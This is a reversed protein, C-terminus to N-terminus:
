AAEDLGGGSQRLLCPEDERGINITTTAIADERLTQVNLRPRLLTTGQDFICRPLTAELLVKLRSAIRWSLFPSAPYQEQEGKAPETVRQSATDNTRKSPRLIRKTQSLPRSTLAAPQKTLHTTPQM